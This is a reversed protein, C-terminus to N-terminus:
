AGTEQRLRAAAPQRLASATSLFGLGMMAAISALLTVIMILPSFHWDTHFVQTITIAAAITGFLGALCGAAGGAVAFEFIWARM